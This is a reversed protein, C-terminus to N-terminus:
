IARKLTCPQYAYMWYAYGPMFTDAFTYSQGNRDWGFVFDSVWGNLVATNWPVSDVLIDTKDVPNDYPVSVINWGSKIYTIYDDSVLIINDVWLECPEYAYFWYGYGQDLSYTFTYSQSSRNWNFIFDSIYGNSVAESWTYNDNFHHIIIYIKDVTQNFPLSILNWNSTLNTIQFFSNGDSITKILWVDTGEEKNSSNSRNRMLVASMTAGAIIYGGDNTQQVAYGWEGSNEEYGYISNWEEDGNIDTKILWVDPDPGIFSVAWGAIIYGGDFTQQVSRGRDAASGGFTEAWVENGSSDTKILLVDSMSVYYIETDGAIIFGGDDTQQVDYGMDFKNPIGTEGFTSSWEESGNSDTKVLWVDCGTGDSDFSVTYGTLIYGGDDTQQGSFCRDHNSGGFTSNWEENGNSDTKILWFDFEGEGFSETYGAIMYGGDVTQDVSCGWDVNIGGFTSNWEENGNSDTKILWFDFEGEGFSHTCGAIIYGGEDTQQVSYGRDYSNGGFTSNWEENGNSDIKILWVDWDGVGFSLTAGTIIYGGDNTQQVAYGEDYSSGGFTQSWSIEEFTKIWEKNLPDNCIDSETKTLIADRNFTNENKEFNGNISPFVGAGLFLGVIALVM